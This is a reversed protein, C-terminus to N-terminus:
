DRSLRIAFDLKWPRVEVRAEAGGEVEIGSSTWQLRLIAPFDGPPASSMLISWPLLCYDFGLFTTSTALTYGLGRVCLYGSLRCFTSCPKSNKTDGVRRSLLWSAASPWYHSKQLLKLRLSLRRHRREELFVDLFSESSLLPHPRWPQLEAPMPQILMEETHM